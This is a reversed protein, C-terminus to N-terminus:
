ARAFGRTIRNNQCSINSIYQVLCSPTLWLFNMVSNCNLIFHAFKFHKYSQSHKDLKWFNPQKQDPSFTRPRCAQWIEDIDSSTPQMKGNKQIVQCPIIGMDVKLTALLSAIFIKLFRVASTFAVVLSSNCCRLHHQTSQTIWWSRSIHSSRFYIHTARALLLLLSHSAHDRNNSAAVTQLKACMSSSIESRLLVLCSRSATKLQWNNKPSLHNQKFWAWRLCAKLECVEVLTGQRKSFRKVTNLATALMWYVFSKLLYM